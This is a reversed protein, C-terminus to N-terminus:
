GVLAKLSFPWKGILLQVITDAACDQVFLVELNEFAEKDEVLVRKRNCAMQAVSTICAHESSSSKGASSPRMTMGGQDQIEELLPIDSWAM